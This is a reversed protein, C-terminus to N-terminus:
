DSYPIKTQLPLFNFCKQMTNNIQLWRKWQNATKCVHKHIYADIRKCDGGLGIHQQFSKWEFTNCYCTVIKNYMYTCDNCHCGYSDCDNSVPEKSLHTNDWPVNLTKFSQIKFLPSSDHNGRTYTGTPVNELVLTYTQWTTTINCLKKRSYTASLFGFYHDYM